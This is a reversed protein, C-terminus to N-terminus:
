TIVKPNRSAGGVGHRHREFAAHYSNSGRFLEGNRAQRLIAQNHRELVPQFDLYRTVTAAEFQIRINEDRCFLLRGDRLVHYQLALPAENLIVLDVEERGLLRILDFGIDLRMRFRNKRDLHRPLLVAVDVDSLPGADNRAYSGFLYALEVDLQEAFYDQIARIHADSLRINM